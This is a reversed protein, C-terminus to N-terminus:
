VTAVQQESVISVPIADSFMPEQKMIATPISLADIDNKWLMSMIANVLDNDRPAKGVFFLKGNVYIQPVKLESLRIPDYIWLQDVKVIVWIGYESRIKEAVRWATELAKDSEENFGLIVLVEVQMVSM